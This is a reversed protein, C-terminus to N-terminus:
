KKSCCAARYTASQLGMFSQDNIKMPAQNVFSTSPALGNFEAVFEHSFRRMAFASHWGRFSNLDTALRQGSVSHRCNFSKTYACNFHRMRWSLNAQRSHLLLHFHKGM